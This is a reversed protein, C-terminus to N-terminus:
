GSMRQALISPLWGPGIEVRASRADIQGGDARILDRGRGGRLTLQDGVAEILDRGQNGRITVRDADSLIYDGGRGGRVLAGDGANVIQDAGRGGRVVANEGTNFIQDRGRGGRIVAGDAHNEIQDAGRGGKIKLPIDVGEGIHIKDAGKNGKITLSSLQDKTYSQTKGNVSVEYRDCDAKTVRIDNSRRDGKITLSGDAKAHVTAERGFGTADRSIKM